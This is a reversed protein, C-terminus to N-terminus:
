REYELRISDAFPTNRWDNMIEGIEQDVITQDRGTLLEFFRGSGQQMIVDSRNFRAQLISLLEASADNLEQVTKDEDSVLYFLVYSFPVKHDECYRMYFRYVVTFADRGLLMAGGSVSREEITKILRDIEHGSVDGGDSEADSIHSYVHYGHKGNQKVTYLSADALSFLHDYETGYEPVMVVGISLGLPIGHDEGMLRCSETHLQENLRRSLSAVVSEDTLDEYFALFEDGGIRCVTDTERTNSRIIDAFAMLVKDGMDHGFLDNVLKFNDLDMIMLSGSKRTCLKSVRDTGRSKNFFGTLKDMMAEETLNEITKNNTITNQIRKLIIDKNIPKRIFDSAGLDLGQQEIATDNDGTLFIVPTKPRRSDKEFSRLKRYAEFGDMGPMMIDLLILDPSNSEMFKLFDEGSKLCNVRINEKRLINRVNTLSLPEDDVVVVWYDM